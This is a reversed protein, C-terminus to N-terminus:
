LFIQIWKDSANVRVEYKNKRLQKILEDWSAKNLEDPRSFWFRDLGKSMAKVIEDNLNQIVIDPIAVLKTAIEQAESKSYLEM